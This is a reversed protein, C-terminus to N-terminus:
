GAATRRDEQTGVHPLRGDSSCMLVQQQVHEPDRHERRRHEGGVRHGALPLLAGELRHERRRDPALLEQEALRQGREDRRDRDGVRHVRDEEGADHQKRLGADRRRDEPGRVDSAWSSKVGSSAPQDIQTPM